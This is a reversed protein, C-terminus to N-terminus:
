CVSFNTTSTTTHHLALWPIGQHLGGIQSSSSGWELWMSSISAPNNTIVARTPTLLFSQSKILTQTHSEASLTHLVTCRRVTFPSETTTLLNHTSGFCHVMCCTPHRDTKWWGLVMTRSYNEWINCMLWDCQECMFWWHSLCSRIVSYSNRLFRAISWILHSRSHDNTYNEVRKQSVSRQQWHVYVVIHAPRVRIAPPVTTERGGLDLLGHNDAMRHYNIAGRKVRCQRYVPM